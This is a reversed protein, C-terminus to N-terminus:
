ASSRWEDPAEVAGVGDPPDPLSRWDDADLGFDECLERVEEDLGQLGLTGKAALHGLRDELLDTLYDAEEREIEAAAIVRRVARGAAERAREIRAEDRVLEPAPLGRLANERDRKLKAKLALTQRLSRAIRQFGRALSAVIEPDSEAMALGHLKEALSADLEALRALALEDPDTIPAADTIACFLFM